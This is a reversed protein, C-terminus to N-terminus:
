VRIGSETGFAGVVADYDHVRCEWLTGFTIARVEDVFYPM